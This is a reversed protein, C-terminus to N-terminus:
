PQAGHRASAPRLTALAQALADDLERALAARPARAAEPLARIVVNTGAPLRGIRNRVLHRLRRRLANRAVARGVARGVVFGARAPAATDTGPAAHVVVLPRGVRVGRRVTGRFDMTRRLRNEPPLM